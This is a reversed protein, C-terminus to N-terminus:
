GHEQEMTLTDLQMPATLTRGDLMVDDGRMQLRGASAWALAEPYIVQEVERMVREALTDATDNGHVSVRGQLIVPGGDVAETVFHVSAGHWAERNALARAHTQLGPYKPLLSPHINLLRGRHHQVFESGLIRMFGALAVFDPAYRGIVAILAMDFTSRDPYDRHNVVVTPVDAARAHALGTADPNNSIVACVEGRIRGARQAELIAQLNRGTGSILVVLRTM